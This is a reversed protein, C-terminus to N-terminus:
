EAHSDGITLSAILSQILDSGKAVKGTGGLAEYIDFVISATNLIHDNTFEDLDLAKIDAPYIVPREIILAVSYYIVYFLLDNKQAQTFTTERKLCLEIKKGLKAANYFVDLDQNKNYIKEYVEDQTLLTSPRARSYNPKQLLLAIMCQALFSVSVIEASKKGQNKYYNKRRDYYLGRSKFFLEIQWQILDNARLASKPIGTQNNTALIIRDRSDESEPVIVRVLVNRKEEELREPYACFYRYIENSTQLGNVVAPETLVLEKSTAPIIEDTLLTIGNNLWWFDEGSPNCLTHQIDQNATVPGQYDRVNSEFMYKRLRGADDIIFRYYEALNVLAIYDRRTGINIPTEALHLTFKSEPHSQAAKFLEDAGWFVVDISTNQGPYIKRVIDRLEESQAVVNPHLESAYSAYHFSISLKSVNRLARIYLERFISFATRVDENYRDAYQTDDVHIELLNAATTKWKMIADENFSTERKAQVIILEVSSEKPVSDRSACIDELMDETVCTGNLLVYISDCGGDNGGGLVGSEIEEDSLDAKKLIHKAAFFEFFVFVDSYSGNEEFEQKFLEELIRQTGTLLKMETEGENMDYQRALTSM